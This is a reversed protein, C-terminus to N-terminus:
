CNKGAYNRNTLLEEQLKNMSKRNNETDDRYGLLHLTGHIALRSLENTTSVNYIKAQRVATEFSIYIEAEIPKDELQFTLVDTSYNHNLYKKNLKKMYKDNIIIVNIQAKNVNENKLTNIIAIKITKKPIRQAISSNFIYIKIKDLSTIKKQTNTFNM